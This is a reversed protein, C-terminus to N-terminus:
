LRRGLTRITTNKLIIYIIFIQIPASVLEKLGRAPLLALFPTKYMLTLWLTNLVLNVIVSILVQAIIVKVLSVRQDYLFVGYIFAGLIASITFGVFYPSGMILTGVIDTLASAVSAWIPGVWVAMLVTAIFTFSFRFFTTPSFSFRGLILQLAMLVGLIATRLTSLRYFGLDLTKM